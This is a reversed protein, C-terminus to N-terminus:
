EGIDTLTKIVAHMNLGNLKLVDMRRVPSRSFVGLSTTQIRVRDTVVSYYM